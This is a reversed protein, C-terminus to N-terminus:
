QIDKAFSDLTHLPTPGAYVNPVSEMIRTVEIAVEQNYLSTPKILQICNPPRRDGFLSKVGDKTVVVTDSLGVAGLGPIQIWPIIHCVMNEQFIKPSEPNM